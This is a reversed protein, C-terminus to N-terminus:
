YHEQADSTYPAISCRFLHLSIHPHKHLPEERSHQLSLTNNNYKLTSNTCLRVKLFDFLAKLDLPQPIYQDAIHESLFDELTDSPLSGAATTHLLIHTTSSEGQKERYLLTM